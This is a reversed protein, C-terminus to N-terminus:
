HVTAFTTLDPFERGGVIFWTEGSCEAFVSFGGLFLEDIVQMAAPENNIIAFEVRQITMQNAEQDGSVRRLHRV